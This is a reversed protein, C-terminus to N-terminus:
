NRYCIKCPTYGWRIAQAKTVKKVEHTCHRLGSCMYAHYRKSGTSICVYVSDTKRSHPAPTTAFVTTSLMTLVFMISVLKKIASPKHSYIYLKEVCCAM